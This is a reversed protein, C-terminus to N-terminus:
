SATLKKRMAEVMQRPRRTEPLSDAFALAEELTAHAGAPDGKKTQIDALVDYIRLKRPGYARALARRSADIAEDYKQMERYLLAQRAPPNYDLPLDKESQQVAALAREPTKLMLAAAVRHSDFAARAEPTAAAKAQEELFTLWREAWARAAAEDGRDEARGALTGYLSSRDDALVSSLGLAEEVLPELAKQAGAKWAADKPAQDACDLGIVAVNAFSPGREMGPAEDKALSACAEWQEGASLAGALSEVARARQPWGPAAAKLAARYGDAAEAIEKAAFRRDAEALLGDADGAAGGAKVAREGDAFLQVFQPATASGLWKLAPREVAPDVIFFTPLGEVPYKELFAANKEAEETNVSLWVFRGAHGALSPDTLVKARM